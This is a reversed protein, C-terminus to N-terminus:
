DEKAKSARQQPFSQYSLSKEIGYVSIQSGKWLRNTNVNNGTKLDRVQRASSALDLMIIRRFRGNFFVIILANSKEITAVIGLQARRQNKPFFLL